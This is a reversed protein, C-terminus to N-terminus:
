GSELMWMKGTDGEERAERDLSLLWSIGTACLAGLAGLVSAGRPAGLLMALLILAGSVSNTM